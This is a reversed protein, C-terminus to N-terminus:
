PSRSHTIRPIIKIVIIIVIVDLHQICAQILRVFGEVIDYSDILPSILPITGAIKGIHIKPEHIISTEEQM